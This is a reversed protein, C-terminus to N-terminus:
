EHGNEAIWQTAPAASDPASEVVFAGCVMTFVITAMVTGCAVSDKITPHGPAQPKKMEHVQRM